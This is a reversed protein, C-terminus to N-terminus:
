GSTIQSATKVERVWRELEPDDKGIIIFRMKNSAPDTSLIEIARLLTDVGKQARDFCGISMFVKGDSLGFRELVLRRREKGLLDKTEM